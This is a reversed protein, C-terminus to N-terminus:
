PRSYCWGQAQLRGAGAAWLRGALGPRFRHFELDLSAGLQTIIPALDHRRRSPLVQRGIENRPVTGHTKATASAGYGIDNPQGPAGNLDRPLRMPFKRMASATKRM